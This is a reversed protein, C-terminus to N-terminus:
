NFEINNKPGNNTFYFIIQHSMSHMHSINQLKGVIHARKEILNSQIENSLIENCILKYIGWNHFEICANWIAAYIIYEVISLLSIIVGLFSNSLILYTVAM